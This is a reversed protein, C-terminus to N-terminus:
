RLGVITTNPYYHSLIEAFTAGDAAMGAAGRQCLGVGHGFGTGNFIVRDGNITTRYDNGPVARWGLSRGVELRARESPNKLLAAAHERDLESTWQQPNRQCYPCEVSYYPYARAKVGIEQLTRTRGGCSETHMASLTAGQYALVMGKTQRTAVWAPSNVSPPQRLFQCHTTDCFDFDRHQPGAAYYSRTAVAQAKLAELPTQPPSEAAVSSAVALELDMTVIPQLVGRAASVTLRGQFRRHLKGPVAVVFDAVGENRSSFSVTQATFEETGIAVKLQNGDLRLIAQSSEITVARPGAHLILMKGPAPQVTLEHPHFLGFIGIRVNRAQLAASLLLFVALWRRRSRQV